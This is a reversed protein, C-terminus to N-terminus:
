VLSREVWYLQKHGRSTFTAAVADAECRSTFSDIAYRQGNDDQRWVTWERRGVHTPDPTWRDVRTADVRVHFLLHRFERENAHIEVNRIADDDTFPSVSHM